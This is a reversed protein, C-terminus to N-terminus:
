KVQKFKLNNGMKSGSGMAEEEAVGAIGYLQDICAMGAANRKPM